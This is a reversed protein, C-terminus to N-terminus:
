SVKCKESVKDTSKVGDNYTHVAKVNLKKNGDHCRATAYKGKQIRSTFDGLPLATVTTDVDLMTGFDGSAKKLKGFLTVSTDGGTNNRPDSCNIPTSAFIRTYLVVQKNVGNFTLVCGPFGGATQAVHALGKGIQANGCAAMAAAMTTNSSFGSPNCKPAADGNLKIDDDIFVQVRDVDGGPQDPPHAFSTSTGLTLAGKHFKKKPLKSPKFSFKVGSINGDSATNALAFGTTALAGAAAIALVVATRRKIRM